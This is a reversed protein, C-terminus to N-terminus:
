LYYSYTKIFRIKVIFSFISRGKASSLSRGSTWRRLSRDWRGQIAEQLTKILCSLRRAQSPRDALPLWRRALSSHPRHTGLLWFRLPGGEGLMTFEFRLHHPGSIGSDGGEKSSFHLKVPCRVPTTSHTM